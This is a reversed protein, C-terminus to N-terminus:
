WKGEASSNSRQLHKDASHEDIMLVLASRQWM